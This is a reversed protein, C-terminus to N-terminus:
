ACGGDVGAAPTAGGGLTTSRVRVATVSDLAVSRSPRSAPM